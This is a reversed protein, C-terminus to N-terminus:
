SNKKYLMVALANFAIAFFMMSIFYQTLDKLLSGKLYVMRILEVFYRMPNFMTVKQMWGPMSSIPTFLGSTLAFFIIFFFAAFMAQQQTSSLASVALGFGAFAVLYIATFLYIIWWSGEPWLGYVAWTIFMGLSLLVLGMVWFPIVKALLFVSKSLPTVNIQEITGMEKEKVLNLAALFGGILTILFALVGPVIYAKYDLYPNNLYRVDIFSPRIKNDFLENDFQNIIQSLYGLGIAGKTGNVANAAIEIEARGGSYIDKEFGYPIDLIIDAKNDEIQVIANSYSDFSGRFEFYNSALVKNVLRESTASKDNDVISLYIEKIEFNAALPLVVLQIIPLLFIIKPLFKDRAIQKFEKELLFILQRM